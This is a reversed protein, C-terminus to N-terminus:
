KPILSVQPRTWDGEFDNRSDLTGDQTTSSLLHGSKTRKAHSASKKNKKWRCRLFSPLRLSPNTRRAFDPSESERPCKSSSWYLLLSSSSSQSALSFPSWQWNFILLTLASYHVARARAWCNILMLWTRRMARLTCTSKRSILTSNIQNRNRLKGTPVM